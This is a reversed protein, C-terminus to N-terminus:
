ALRNLRYRRLSHLLIRNALDTPMYKHPKPANGVEYDSLSSHELFDNKVRWKMFVKACLADHHLTSQSKGDEARAVLYGDLHRKGFKDLPISDAEAHRVPM